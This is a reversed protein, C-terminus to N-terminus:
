VIEEWASYNKTVSINYAPVIFRPLSNSAAPIATFSQVANQPSVVVDVSNDTISLIKLSFALWGALIVVSKRADSM